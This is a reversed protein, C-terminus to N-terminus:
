FKYTFTFSPIIPLITIKRLKYYENGNSDTKTKSFCFDPNKSNYANYISLNFIRECHKKQKHFNIGICM